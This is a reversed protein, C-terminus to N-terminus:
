RSPMVASPRQTLRPTRVLLSKKRAPLDSEQHTAPMDSTTESMPAFSMIPSAPSAYRYPMTIIFKSKTAQM